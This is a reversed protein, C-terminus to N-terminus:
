VKDYKSLMAIVGLEVAAGLPLSTTGVAIRSHKGAEGFAEVFLESAANMVLHQDTFSPASAVYGELKVIRVIRDINGDAASKLAAMANIACQRAAAQAEDLSVDHGVIGKAVLRGEKMPLQGSIFVLGNAAVFPVYAAVPAALGPLAIGMRELRKEVESM